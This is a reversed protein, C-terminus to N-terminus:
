DRKEQKDKKRQPCQTRYYGFEGCKFCKVKSLDKKKKEGQTGQGQIPGKSALAVNGEEEEGKSGKSDSGSIS